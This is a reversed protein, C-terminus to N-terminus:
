KTPAGAAPWKCPVALKDRVIKLGAIAYRGEVAAGQRATVRFAVEGHDPLSALLRVIDGKIALGTGSAPAGAALVVPQGGDVGQAPHIESDDIGIRELFVADLQRLNALVDGIKQVQERRLQM